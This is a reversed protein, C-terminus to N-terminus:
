WSPVYPEEVVIVNHTELPLEVAPGGRRARGTQTSRDPAGGARRPSARLDVSVRLHCPRSTGTIDEIRLVANMDLGRRVMSGSPLEIEVSVGAFPRWWPDVLRVEMWTFAEERRLSSLPVADDWDDGRDRRHMVPRMGRPPEPMQVPVLRGSAIEEAVCRAVAEDSALDGAFGCSSALSRFTPGGTADRLALLTYEYAADFSWRHVEHGPVFLYEDGLGVSFRPYSNSM